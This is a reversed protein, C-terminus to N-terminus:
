RDIGIFKAKHKNLFRELDKTGKPYYDNKDGILHFENFGNDYLKFKENKIQFIIRDRENRKPISTLGGDPVHLYKGKFTYKGESLEEEPVDKGHLIYGDNKNTGIQKYSAEKLLDQLKM